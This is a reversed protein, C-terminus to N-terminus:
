LWHCPSICVDSFGSSYASHLSFLHHYHKQGVLDGANNDYGHEGRRWQKWDVTGARFIQKHARIVVVLMMSTTVILAISPVVASTIYSIQILTTEFVNNAIMAFVCGNPYWRTYISFTSAALAAGVIWNFALIVYCRKRSLIQECRLPKTIAILKSIAVWSLSHASNFSFWWQCFMQVQPLYTTSLWVTPTARSCFAASVPMTTCGGALDSLCLSCMFLTTCDQRLEPYKAIVAIVLGNMIINLAIVVSIIVPKVDNFDNADM